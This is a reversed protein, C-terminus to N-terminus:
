SPYRGDPDTACRNVAPPTTPTTADACTRRLSGVCNSTTPDNTPTDPTPNDNSSKAKGMGAGTAPGTPTPPPASNPVNTTTPDDIFAPFVVVAAANIRPQARAPNRTPAPFTVPEPLPFSRHIYSSAPAPSITSKRSKPIAEVNPYGNGRNAEVI